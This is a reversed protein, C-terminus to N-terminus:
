AKRNLLVSPFSRSIVPCLRGVSDRLFVNVAVDIVADVTMTTSLILKSM